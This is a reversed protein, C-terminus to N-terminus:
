YWMHQKWRYKLALDPTVKQKGHWVMLGWMWMWLLCSCSMKWMPWPQKASSLFNTPYILNPTPQPHFLLFACTQTFDEKLPHDAVLRLSSRGLGPLNPTVATYILMAGARGHRQYYMLVSSNEFSICVLSYYQLFDPVRKTGENREGDIFLRINKLKRHSNTWDSFWRFWHSASKVRGHTTHAWFGRESDCGCSNNGFKM